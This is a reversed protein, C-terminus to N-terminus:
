NETSSTAQPPADGTLIAFMRDAVSPTTKLPPPEPAASRAVPEDPPEARRFLEPHLRLIDGALTGDEALPFMAVLGGPVDVRLERGPHDAPTLVVRVHFRYYRFNRTGEKNKEDTEAIAASLKEDNLVTREFPMRGLLTVDSAATGGGEPGVGHYWGKSREAVTEEDADDQRYRRAKHKLNDTAPTVSRGDSLEFGVTVKRGGVTVEYDGRLLAEIHPRLQAHSTRQIYRLGATTTHDIGPVEWPRDGEAFPTEHGARHAAVKAWRHVAAAAPVDWPHLNELLAQHPGERHEPTDAWGLFRGHARVFPPESAAPQEDRPTTLYKPVILRIDGAVLDNDGSDHWDWPRAGYRVGDLPERVGFRKAVAASLEYAGTVPLALLKLFEPMERTTGLEIRFHVAHEFEETGGKVNARYISIDKALREEGRVLKGLWGGAYDLGGHAQHSTEGDHTGGRVAVAVGAGVNRSVKEVEKKEGTSEGRLTLDVDPRSRHSHAEDMREATVNVWLYKTAGAFTRIPLWTWLGTDFLAGTQAKMAESRYVSRLARLLVHQEYVSREGAANRGTPLVGRAQLRRVITDLVDDARLVETHAATLPLRDSVYVRSPPAPVSASTSATPVPAPATAEAAAPDPAPRQADQRVVVIDEVRREPVLLDMGDEVTLEAHREEVRGGKRRHVTLHFVPDTRFTVKDGGYTARTIEISGDSVEQSATWDRGIGANAMLTVRGGPAAGHHESEVTGEGGDEGSDSRESGFRIQPGLGAQLGVGWTRGREATHRKVAQSYQEIETERGLGPLERPNGVTLRLTLTTTWGDREPLAVTHGWKDTLMGFYAALQDPRTPTLFEKPMDAFSRGWGDPLHHVAAYLSAALEALEPMVRFAPYLGSSGARFDLTRQPETPAPAAASPGEERVAGEGPLEPLSERVHQAPVVVQAVVDADRGVWWHQATTGAGGDLPRLTQEYVINYVHEHVEKVDEVRRYTKSTGAFGEGESRAYKGQIRFGGFQLRVLPGIGVRTGAGGGLGLSWKTERGAAVSEGVAARANVTMDYRRHTLHEFLHARVGLEFRRGDYTIEQKIGALLASLDGELSPRGFFTALRSDAAAGGKVPHHGTTPQWWGLFGTRHGTLEQLKRRFADEVLEAGPLAGAVAYGLGKRTALALSEYPRASLDPRPPAAASEFDVAAIDLLARVHPQAAVPPEWVRPADADASLKAAAAHTTVYPSRVEGLVRTEFDEAGLGNRWPVGLDATVASTVTRLDPHTRSNWDLTVRLVTRYRAHDETSNLVTHALAQSTVNYDWSRSFGVTANLLPGMGKTSSGAHSQALEPAVLGALNFGAGLAAASEGGRGTAASLGGGLDDRVTVMPTVQLFQVSEVAMRVRLHGTFLGAGPLDRGERIKPTADGSTLWWRGRNRATRENLVIQAKAVVDQAMRANMRQEGRLSRQLEATLDTLDIANLVEGARRPRQRGTGRPDHADGLPGPRPESSTAYNQPFNVGLGRAVTGPRAPDRLRQEAGDVFIRFRVGGTFERTDSVFLKRGTIVNRKDGTTRSSSSDASFQPAGVVIASLAASGANIGTFLAIDGSHAVIRTRAQQSSTSNFSVGYKRVADKPGDEVEKATVDALLPRLWVLREGAVLLKGKLLVDLMHEASGAPQAGWEHLMQGVATRIATRTSEPVDRGFRFADVVTRAADAARQEDWQPVHTVEAEGLM